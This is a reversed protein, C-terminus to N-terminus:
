LIPDIAKAKAILSEAPAVAQSPDFGIWVVQKGFDIMVKGDKVGIAIRIEGEDGPTLKGQPYEGTGGLQMEQRRNAEEMLRELEAAIHQRDEPQSSHHAM